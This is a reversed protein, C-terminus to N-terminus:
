LNRNIIEISEPPLCLVTVASRVVGHMLHLSPALYQADHSWVAAKQGAVCVM